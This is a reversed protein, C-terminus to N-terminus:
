PTDRAASPHRNRRGSPLGHAHGALARACFHKGAFPWCLFNGVRQQLKQNEADLVDPTSSALKSLLFLNCDEVERARLSGLWERWYPPTNFTTDDALVWLDSAITGSPIHGDVKITLGVVAYKEGDDIWTASNGNSVTATECDDM